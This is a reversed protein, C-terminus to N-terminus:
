AKRGEPPIVTADPHVPCVVLRAATQDCFCRTLSRGGPSQYTIAYGRETLFEWVQAVLADRHEVPMDALVPLGNEAFPETSATM